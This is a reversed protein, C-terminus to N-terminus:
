DLRGRGGAQVSVDNAVVFPDRSDHISGADFMRGTKDVYGQVSVIAVDHPHFGVQPQDTDEVRGEGAALDVVFRAREGGVVVLRARRDSPRARRAAGGCGPIPRRADPRGRVADQPLGDGRPHQGSRSCRPGDTWASARDRRAAAGRYELADLLAGFQDRMGEMTHGMLAFARELLDRRHIRISGGGLEWGNLALDYQQARISGPDSELRDEEEWVPASFPNHTADWRQGEEDWKFM